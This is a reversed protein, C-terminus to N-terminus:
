GRLLKTNVTYHTMPQIGKKIRGRLIFFMYFPRPEDIEDTNRDIIWRKNYLITYPM